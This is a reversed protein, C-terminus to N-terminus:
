PSLNVDDESKNVEAATSAKEFLFILTQNEWM